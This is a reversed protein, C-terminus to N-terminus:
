KYWEKVLIQNNFLTSNPDSTVTMSHGLPQTNDVSGDSFYSFLSCAM